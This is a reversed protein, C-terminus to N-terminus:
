LLFSVNSSIWLVCDIYIKIVIICRGVNGEFNIRVGRALRIQGFSLLTLAGEDNEAINNIFDMSGQIDVLSGTIQVNCM